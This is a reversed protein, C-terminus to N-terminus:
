FVGAYNQLNHLNLTNDFEMGNKIPQISKKLPLKLKVAKLSVYYLSYPLGM